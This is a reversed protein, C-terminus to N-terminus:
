GNPALTKMVHIESLIRYEINPSFEHCPESTLFVRHQGMFQPCKKTDYKECDCCMRRDFLINILIKSMAAYKEYLAIEDDM